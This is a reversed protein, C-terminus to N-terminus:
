KCVNGRYARIISSGFSRGLSLLSNIGRAVASLFSASTFNIAGGSIKHLCEDKLKM